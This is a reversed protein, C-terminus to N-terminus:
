QSLEAPIYEEFMCGFLALLEEDSRLKMFEVYERASRFSDHPDGFLPPRGNDAMVQNPYEFKAVYAEGISKIQDNSFGCSRFSPYGEEKELFWEIMTASIGRDMHDFLRQRADISLGKMYYDLVRGPM